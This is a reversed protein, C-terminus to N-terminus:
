FVSIILMDGGQKFDKMLREMVGRFHLGESIMMSQKMDRYCHNAFKKQLPRIANKKRERCALQGRNCSNLKVVM